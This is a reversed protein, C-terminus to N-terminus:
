ELHRGFATKQTIELKQLFLSTTLNDQVIMMMTMMMLKVDM